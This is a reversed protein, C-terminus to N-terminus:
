TTLPHERNKLPFHVRGGTRQSEYLALAMELTWRAHRGGARPERDQEISELLDAVLARNAEHVDRAPPNGPLALRMWAANTWAVSRAIHVAPQMDARITMIGQSGCIDLGFRRGATEESRRSGFYGTIGDRFAYMGAISDGALPGLGENGDRIDRRQIDAGGATVRGAAWLPDGAFQRMLDFVHTGLVMLDEGGARQDEKGRGRLEQVQGIAGEKVRQKALEIIPAIRMQHAVALKVRARDCAALMRDAEAPTRAMPKELYISAGAEAAAIVMDHHCDVWRPAVSVVDPKESRLMERYDAYAARVGLREAAKKLGQPDEDAVAVIQVNPFLKWVIDLAHGYGGRGTRGIVGARYKRM